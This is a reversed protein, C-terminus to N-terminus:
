NFACGLNFLSRLYDFFKDKLVSIAKQIVYFGILGDTVLLAIPAGVLGISKLLIYAIIIALLSSILSIKASGSHKNTAMLVVSSNQWFGSLIVILLMSYFLPKDIVIHRGTWIQLLWPGVFALVIAALISLWM